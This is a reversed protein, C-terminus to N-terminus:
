LPRCCNRELPPNSKKNKRKTKPIQNRYHSHNEYIESIKYISGVTVVSTPEMPCSTPRGYVEDSSLESGVPVM